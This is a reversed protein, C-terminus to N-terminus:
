AACEEQMAQWASERVGQAFPKGRELTIERLRAARDANTQMDAIECALKLHEVVALHLVEAAARGRKAAAGEIFRRRQAVGMRAVQRVECEHRFAESDTAPGGPLFPTETKV